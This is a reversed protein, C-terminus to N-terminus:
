PLGLEDAFLDYGVFSVIDLISHAVVLPMVRGTRHYFYAFVVGMLMNGIAMGYGQYLHYSGRLVASTAIIAPLEWGLQRLRTMLFGVVIVEEVVANQLASLVLVPVTWWYANLTSAQISVNLDLAHGLFYIGLGPLGIVASLGAGFLLDRRPQALDFGIRKIASRGPGSLLYLALAVPVLAFGISLVQYTLDLYERTSQSANLTATQDSLREPRTLRAILSVVAYVASQGLSLGLVIWIEASLRRRSTTETGAAPLDQTVM